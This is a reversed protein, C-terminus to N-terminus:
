SSCKWDMRLSYIICFVSQLYLIVSEQLKDIYKFRRFRDKLYGFSNEVPVTTRSHVYNFKQQQLRLVSTAKYPVLLHTHLPFPSGGLIYQPPPLFKNSSGNLVDKWFGTNKFVATRHRELFIPMFMFKLNASSIALIKKSHKFKRNTMKNKPHLKLGLIAVM